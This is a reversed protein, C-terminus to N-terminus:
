SSPAASLRLTFEAGQKPVNMVSLQGNNKEVIAKAMSLGLGIGRAKTTFLPDMIRHLIDEAIGPGNDTVSLLVCGAEKRTTITIRGGEPLADRANHILNRIVIQMQNPDCWVTLTPELGVLALEISVPFSITELVDHLWEQLAVAQMDPVPLRAFNSLATIVGDALGVHKEIRSLHQQKKEESANKANLLYYVSTKIVNLPNRLEHAVGGAVQGITALKEIQQQRNFYETQYADEIIALDLDLIKDLARHIAHLEESDREGSEWLTKLADHLGYRLRSLATNTYVQELGIEVHRYGVRWRRAVFDADYEGHLLEGLWLTLTRKLRAIQEEGGTIVKRAGPHREIESYFDEVLQPFYTELDAAVARIRAADDDTWGVYRQLDQYRVFLSDRDM